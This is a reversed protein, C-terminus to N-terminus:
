STKVTLTILLAGLKELATRVSRPVKQKGVSYAIDTGLCAETLLLIRSLKNDNSIKCVLYFFSLDDWAVQKERL